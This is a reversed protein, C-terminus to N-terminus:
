DSESSYDTEVMSSTVSVDGDDDDDSIAHKKKHLIIPRQIVSPRPKPQKNLIPRGVLKKSPIAILRDYLLKAILDNSEEQTLGRFQERNKEVVSVSQTIIETDLKQQQTKEIKEKAKPAPMAEPPALTGNAILKKHNASGFKVYRKTLPNLILQEM